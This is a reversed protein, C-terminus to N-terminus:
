AMAQTSPLPAPQIESQRRLIDQHIKDLAHTPIPFRGFKEPEEIPQTQPAPPVAATPAPLTRSFLSFKM